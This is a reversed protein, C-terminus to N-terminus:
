ANQYCSIAELLTFRNELLSRGIIIDKIGCSKLRVIDELSSVGGSSQFCIHPFLQTLEKYLVFNPGLLTGDKSIDTCLVYKLGYESFKKIVNEVSLQSNEQWGNILIEKCNNANILVDLALVIANGGYNKFWKKVETCNSIAVSSIVVRKAGIEFLTEIDKETRIGGGIQTYVDIKSLISKYLKIQKITPDKAGDLDVIHIIQAGQSYYDKIKAHIDNSYIKKESFNGQYLRVIQGNILDIAPIIM